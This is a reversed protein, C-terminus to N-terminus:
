TVKSTLWAQVVGLVYSEAEDLLMPRKPPKSHEKGHRARDGAVTVSNASHKFRKMANRPAWGRKELIDEGGVDSAIVEHIRYLGTWSKADDSDLLRLVKAVAADSAALRSWALMRPPPPLKTEVNDQSDTSTVGLTGVASHIRLGDRVHISVDRGGVANHRYVAGSRLSECSGRDLKLLGSLTSLEKDALTLVEEPLSCSAFADAEFVFDYQEDRLVRIQGSTFYRALYELDSALGQIQVQWQGPTTTM